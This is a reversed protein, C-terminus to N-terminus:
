IFVGDPTSLGLFTHFLVFIIVMVVVDYLITAWVKKWTFGERVWTITLSLATIILFLCTYMGIVKVLLMMVVAFVLLVIGIATTQASNSRPPKKVENGTGFFSMILIGLGMLMGIAMVIRPLLRVTDSLELTQTWIVVIFAIIGLGM